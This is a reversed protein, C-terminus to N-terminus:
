SSSGLHRDTSADEDRYDLDCRQMAQALSRCLVDRYPRYEGLIEQYRIAEFDRLFADGDIQRLRPGLTRRTGDDIAFGV